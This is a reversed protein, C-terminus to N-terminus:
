RRFNVRKHIMWDTSRGEAAATAYIAMMTRGATLIAQESEFTCGREISGSVGPLAAIQSLCKFSVLTFRDNDGPKELVLYFYNPTSQHTTGDMTFVYSAEVIYIGDDLEAFRLSRDWREDRKGTYKDRVEVDAKKREPSVKIRSFYARDNAKYKGKIPSAVLLSDSLLLDSQGARWPAGLLLDDFLSAACGVIFSSILLLHLMM